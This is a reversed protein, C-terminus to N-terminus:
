FRVGMQERLGYQADLNAVNLPGQAAAKAQLLQPKGQGGKERKVSHALVRQAIQRSKARLTTARTALPKRTSGKNSSTTNQPTQDRPCTKQLDAPGSPFTIASTERPPAHRYSRAPSYVILAKVAIACYPGDQAIAYQPM